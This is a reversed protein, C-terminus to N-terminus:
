LATPEVVKYCWLNVHYFLIPLIVPNTFYCYQEIMNWCRTVTLVHLVRSSIVVMMGQCCTRDHIFMATSKDHHNWCRQELRNTWWAVFLRNWCAHVLRTTLLWTDELEGAWCGHELRDVPLFLNDTKVRTDTANDYMPSAQTAEACM